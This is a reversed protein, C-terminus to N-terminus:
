GTKEYVYGLSAGKYTAEVEWCGPEDPDIGAIM